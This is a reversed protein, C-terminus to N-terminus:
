HHPSCVQTTSRSMWSVVWAVIRPKSRPTLYSLDSLVDIAETIMRTKANSRKAMLLPLWYYSAVQKLKSETSEEVFIALSFSNGFSISVFDLLHIVFKFKHKTILSNTITILPFLFVDTTRLSRVLKFNPTTLLLHTFGWTWPLASQLNLRSTLYIPWLDQTTLQLLLAPFASALIVARRSLAFLFLSCARLLRLLLFLFLPALCLLLWM